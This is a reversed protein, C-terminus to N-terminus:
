VDSPITVKELNLVRANNLLKGVVKIIENHPTIDLTHWTEDESSQAALREATPIAFLSPRLARFTCAFPLAIQHASDSPGLSKPDFRHTITDHIDGANLGIEPVDRLGYITNEGIQKAIAIAVNEQTIIIPSPRSSDTARNKAKIGLSKLFKVEAEECVVNDTRETRNVYYMNDSKLRWIYQAFDTTLSAKPEIPEFFRIYTLTTSLGEPSQVFKPDKLIGLACLDNGLHEFYATM